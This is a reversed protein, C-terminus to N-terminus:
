GVLRGLAARVRQRPSVWVTHWGAGRCAPCAGSRAHGSGCCARCIRETTCSPASGAPTQPGPLSSAALSQDAPLSRAFTSM